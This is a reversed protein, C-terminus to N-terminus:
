CLVEYYEICHKTQHKAITRKSNKNFKNHYVNIRITNWSRWTNSFDNDLHDNEIKHEMFLINNMFLSLDIIKLQM